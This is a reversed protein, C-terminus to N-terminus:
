EEGPLGGYSILHEQREEASGHAAGSISRGAENLRQIDPTPLEVYFRNPKTLVAPVLNERGQLELSTIPQHIRTLRKIDRGLGNGRSM